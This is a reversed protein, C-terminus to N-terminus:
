ERNLLFDELKKMNQPKLIENIQTSFKLDEFLVSTFVISEVGIGKLAKALEIGDEGSALQYDLFVWEPKIIRCKDLADSFSTGTAVFEFGLKNITSKLHEHLGEADQIVLIRKSRDKKWGFDKYPDHQEHLETNFFSHDFQNDKSSFFGVIGTVISHPDTVSTLFVKLKKFTGNEPIKVETAQPLGDLVKYWFMNTASDSDFSFQFLNKFQGSNSNETSLGVLKEFCCNSKIIAGNLNFYAMGVSENACM